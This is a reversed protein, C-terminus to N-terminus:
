KAQPAPAPQRLAPVEVPPGSLEDPKALLGALLLAAIVLLAIAIWVAIRRHRRLQDEESGIQNLKDRIKRLASRERERQAADVLIERGRTAGARPKPTSPDTSAM